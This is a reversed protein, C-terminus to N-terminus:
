VVTLNNQLFCEISLFGSHATTFNVNILAQMSVHILTRASEVSPFFISLPLITKLQQAIHIFQLFTISFNLYLHLTMVTFERIPGGEFGGGRSYAGVRSSCITLLGGGMSYAGVAVTFECIPGKLKIIKPM